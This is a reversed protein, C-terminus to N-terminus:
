PAATSWPAGALMELEAAAVHWDRTARVQELQFDLLVHISDLVDLFATASYGTAYSSQLSEYTQRAQPILTDEYLRYRREADRVNFIAMQAARELALTRRRKQQATARELLAAEEVSARVRRRWIPLNMSLSIMVNDEGGDSYAMPEDATALAYADIAANPASFPTAGTATSVLRNAANLSAPYPRDPRIQRPKSVSVYEIGLTFDPRGKKKALVAQKRRGEVLHDFVALEPNQARVGALIEADAPLPPPFEAEQPWPPEEDVGRGLAENLGAALAPRMQTLSDLRDQLKTREIAIRLLDAEGALGLSLRSSVVDEMFSLVEGQSAVIEISEGLFAYESYAKKVDAFVRNREAYFRALAADAEVAAQEGRARLTGFWPFKQALMAKFRNTESQLFQGYTFVPDDLATAQPIRTLAARWQEHLARLGPHDEAAEVLYARLEDNAAFYAPPEMQTVAVTMLIMAAIM